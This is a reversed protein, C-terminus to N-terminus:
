GEGQDRVNLTLMPIPGPFSVPPFLQTHAHHMWSSYRDCHLVIKRTQASIVMVSGCPVPLFRPCLSGSPASEDSGPLYLRDEAAKDGGKM